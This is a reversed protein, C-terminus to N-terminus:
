SFSLPPFSHCKLHPTICLLLWASRGGSKLGPILQSHAAFAACLEGHFCSMGFFLDNLEEFFMLGASGDGIEATPVTDTLGGEVLPPM